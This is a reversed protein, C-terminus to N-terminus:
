GNRKYISDNIMKNGIRSFSLCIGVTHTYYINQEYNVVLLSWNEVTFDIYVYVTYLIIYVANETMCQWM